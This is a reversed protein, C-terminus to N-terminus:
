SMKEAWDGILPLQFADGQLAKVVAVLWVIGLGMLSVTMAMWGLLFGIKPVIASVGFLVRLLVALLVGSVTLLISQWCHFRIFHSKRTKDLRLFVIAPIFSFYALAGFLREQLRGTSSAAPIAVM